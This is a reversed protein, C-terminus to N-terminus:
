DYTGGGGRIALASVVLAAALLACGGLGGV